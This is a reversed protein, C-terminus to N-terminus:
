VSHEKWDNWLIYSVNLGVLVQWVAFSLTSSYTDHTPLVVFFLFGGIAGSVLPTLRLWQFKRNRYLLFLITAIVGGGILGAGPGIMPGKVAFLTLGLYFALTFALVSLALFILKRLMNVEILKWNAVLIALGFILGPSYALAEFDNSLKDFIFYSIVGSALYALFCYLYFLGQSSFTNNSSM